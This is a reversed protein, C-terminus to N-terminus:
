QSNKMFHKRCQRIMEDDPKQQVPPVQSGAYYDTVQNLNYNPTKYINNDTCHPIQTKLIYKNIDPHQTIDHQQLSKCPKYSPPCTTTDKIAYKELVKPYDNHTTIDFSNITIQNPGDLLTDRGNISKVMQKQSNIKYLIQGDPSQYVVMDGTPTLVQNDFGMRLNCPKYIPPCTAMDRMAYKMMLPQYQPHKEIPMSAVLQSVKSKAVYNYFDPHTNIPFDGITKQPPCEPAKPCVPAKPCEPAKPCVPCTPCPENKKCKECPKYQPPCNTSPVSYKKMTENYQPHKDIPLNACDYEKVKKDCDIVTIYKILQDKPVACDAKLMMKAMIKQFDKHKTIDYKSKTLPDISFNGDRTCVTIESGSGNSGDSSGGIQGKKPMKQCSDINNTDLNFENQCKDLQKRLNALQDKLKPAQRDVCKAQEIYKCFDKHTKIDFDNITKPAPCEQRNAQPLCATAPPCSRSKTLEVEFSANELQKQLDKIKAELSKSQLKDLNCSSQLEKFKKFLLMYSDKESQLEALHNAYSIKRCEKNFLNTFKSKETDTESYLSKNQYEECKDFKQVIGEFGIRMSPWNHWKTPYIRIGKTIVNPSSSKITQTDVNAPFTDGFQRWQNTYPIQYYISYETVWSEQLAINTTSADGAGQTSIKDIKYIKDFDAQLYYKMSLKEPMCWAGTSNISANKALCVQDATKGKPYTENSSWKIVKIGNFIPKLQGVFGVRMSPYSNWEMPYIRVSDTNISIKNIKYSNRDTNGVYQSERIWQGDDTHYYIAFNTVWQDTDSRGQTVVQTLNYIEGFDVQVYNKLPTNEAACWAHEHGLEANTPLCSPNTAEGSPWSGNSSYKVNKIINQPNNDIQGEAEVISPLFLSTRGQSKGNYKFMFSVSQAKSKEPNKFLWSLQRWQDKQNVQQYPTWVRSQGDKAQLNNGTYVRISLTQPDDHRIWLNVRYSHNQKMPVDDDYDYYYSQGSTVNFSITNGGMTNPPCIENFIPNDLNLPKWHTRLDPTKLLNGPVLSPPLKQQCQRNPQTEKMRTAIEDITLAYNAYEANKMQGGFGNMGIYVNGDNNNPTGKLVCQRILQANIYSVIKQGQLVYAVHIWENQPIIYEPDCGENSNETTSCRFHFKSDNPYIWIGPSRQSGDATGKHILHKWQGKKYDLNTMNLWFYYTYNNSPDLRLNAVQVREETLGDFSAVLRLIQQPQNVREFYWRQSPSKYDSWIYVPMADNDDTNQENFTLYYNGLNSKIRGSLDVSWRQNKGANGDFIEVATGNKTQGGSVDLCRNSLRNIIRGISDVYWQQHLGDHSDFLVVRSKNATEGGNIDLCKRNLRSHIKFYGSPFGFVGKETQKKEFGEYIPEAKVIRSPLGDTDPIPTEAIQIVNQIQGINNKKQSIMPGPTQLTVEPKADEIGNYGDSPFDQRVIEPGYPGVPFQNKSPPIEIQDEHAIGTVIDVKYRTENTTINEPVDTPLDDINPDVHRGSDASTIMNDDNLVRVDDIFTEQLQLRPKILAYFIIFILIFTIVSKILM